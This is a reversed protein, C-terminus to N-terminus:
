LNRAVLLLYIETIVCEVCLISMRAYLFHVGHTDQVKLSITLLTSLSLAYIEKSRVETKREYNNKAGKRWLLINVCWQLDKTMSHFSFIVYMFVHVIFRCMKTSGQDDLPFCIYYTINTKWEIVLSRCLHTSKNHKGEIYCHVLIPNISIIVHM